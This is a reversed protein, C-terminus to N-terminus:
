RTTSPKAPEAQSEPPMLTILLKQRLRTLGAQCNPSCIEPAPKQRAVQPLPPIPPPQVVVPPPQVPQQACGLLLGAPPMLTVGLLMWLPRRM